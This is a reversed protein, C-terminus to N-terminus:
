RIAEVVSGVVCDVLEEDVDEEVDLKGEDVASGVEVIVDRFVVVVVCDLEDDVEVEDVDEEDLEDDDVVDVTIGTGELRSM